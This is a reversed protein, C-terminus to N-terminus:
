LMIPESLELALTTPGTAQGILVVTQGVSIPPVTTIRGQAAPDLFYNAGVALTVTGAILSWDPRTLIGRTAQCSFGIATDQVALGVVFSTGIANAQALRMQGTNDVRVPQGKLIGVAAQASVAGQSASILASIMASNGIGKAHGAGDTIYAEAYEGNAVYYLADPQLTAPLSVVKFEKFERM